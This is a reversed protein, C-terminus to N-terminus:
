GVGLLLLNSGGGAAPTLTFDVTLVPSSSPDDGGGANVVAPNSNGWTGDFTGTLDWSNMYGLMTYGTLNIAAEGTANLTIPNYEDTVLASFLVSGLDTFSLTSYDANVVESTDSAPNSPTIVLSPDGGLSNVVATPWLDFTASDITNGSGIASTDFGVIVRDNKQFQNTTASAQLFIRGSGSTTVNNGAGARIAAFTQNVGSRIVVGMVPDNEATAWPQFDLTDFGFSPLKFRDLVLWDVFHMAWWMPKFAQYLRYAYFNASHFKGTVKIKKKGKANIFIANPHIANVKGKVRFLMQGPLTNAFWVLKDQYKLFWQKDFVM